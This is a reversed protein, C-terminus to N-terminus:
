FVLPLNISQALTAGVLGWPPRLNVNVTMKCVMPFNVIQKHRSGLLAKKSCDRVMKCPGLHNSIAELLGKNLRSVFVFKM